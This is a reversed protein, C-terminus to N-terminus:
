SNDGSLIRSIYKRLGQEITAYRFDPNNNMQYRTLARTKVQYFNLDQTSPFPIYEIKAPIEKTILEAIKTYGVSNGTGLDFIGRNHPAGSTAADCLVTVVDGVEVFDRSQVEKKSVDWIEIVQSEKASDIFKRPISVMSGKKGEGPGYTNFLRFIMAPWDRVMRLESLTNEGLVKSQAYPSLSPNEEYNGYIAASSIFITPIRKKSTAEFYEQTLEVNSFYLDSINTAAANADAGLHFFTTNGPNFEGSNIQMIIAEPSVSSQGASLEVEVVEWSEAKLQEVLLKGIFGASGTVIATRYIPM